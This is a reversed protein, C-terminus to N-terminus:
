WGLWRQYALRLHFRSSGLEIRIRNAPKLVNGATCATASTSSSTTEEASANRATRLWGLLGGGFSLQGARERGQRQVFLGPVSGYEPVKVSIVALLARLRNLGTAPRCRCEPRGRSGFVATGLANLNRTKRGCLHRHKRGSWGRGNGIGRRNRKGEGSARLGGRSGQAILRLSFVRDCRLFVRNSSEAGIREGKVIGIFIQPLGHHSPLCDNRLLILCHIEVRRDVLLEGFAILFCQSSEVGAHGPSVEATQVVLK